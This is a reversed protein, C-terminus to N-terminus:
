PLAAPLSSVWRPRQISSPAFCTGSKVATRRSSSMRSTLPQVSSSRSRPVPRTQRQPCRTRLTSRDRISRARRAPMQETSPPPRVAAGRFALDVAEGTPSPREVPAAFANRGPRCNPTEEGRGRPLSPSDARGDGRRYRDARRPRRPRSRPRYWAQSGRLYPRSLRTVDAARTLATPSRPKTTSRWVRRRDCQATRRFRLNEPAVADVDM